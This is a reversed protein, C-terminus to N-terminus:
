GYGKVAHREGPAACVQDLLEEQTGKVFDAWTGDPMLRETYLMVGTFPGLAPGTLYSARESIRFTYHPYALLGFTPSFLAAAEHIRCRPDGAVGCTKCEVCRCDSPHTGDGEPDGGCVGCPGADVHPPSEPRTM